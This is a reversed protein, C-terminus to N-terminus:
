TRPLHDAFHALSYEKRLAEGLQKPDTGIKVGPNLLNHPDFGSKIIKFLDLMKDGVQLKVFPVRIRGDGQEASITGGIKVVEKYYEEMIQFVKQRDTLKALDLFPHVHLNADGAHGWVMVPLKFKDFIRYIMQIFDFLYEVPVAAADIIPLSAKGGQHYNVVESTAHRIILYQEKEDFDNTLLCHDTYAKVIKMAQKAKKLKAKGPNDFEVFLLFSPKYDPSKLNEPLNVSQQQQIFELFNDDVMDIMSPGLNRLRTVVETINDFSEFAAVLLETKPNYPEARLIAESIVGLTGQSGVFIPTLDISGDRRRVDALAYGISDKTVRLKDYYEDLVDDNESLVADVIRYIEGELTTLGKKKDIEKRGIRGTQILEGNALVVELKDVWDAISGYKLSKEGYANNAIAGGITSYKYSSPFVPIHLGHTQLTEQLSKFNVGPQVRVLKQQSDLELIKNMHAPFVMIIGKGIAAGTQDTGSGRATIPLTHKKEALQWSFRAIKRIDNTTRPYVVVSPTMSLVSADTSFRKRMQDDDFVEGSLHSQLYSAVKGM